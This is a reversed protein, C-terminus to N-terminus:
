LGRRHDRGPAPEARDRRAPGQRQPDRLARKRRVAAARHRLRGRRRREDRHHRSTRGARARHTGRGQAAGARRPREQRRDAGPRVPEQHLRPRTGRVRNRCARGHARGRGHQQHAASRPNQRASHRAGAATTSRHGRQVAQRLRRRQRGRCRGGSQRPRLPRVLGSRDAARRPEEAGRARRVSLGM